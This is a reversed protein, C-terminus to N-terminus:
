AIGGMWEQWLAACGDANPTRKDTWFGRRGLYLDQAWPADLHLVENAPVCRGAIDFDEDAPLSGDANCLVHTGSQFGEPDDLLFFFSDCHDIDGVMQVQAAQAFLVTDANVDSPIVYQALTVRVAGDGDLDAGLATFREQLQMAQEETLPRSGVYAVQFDPLDKNVSWANWLINALMAVLAVGLVVHWKHYYWWNNWKERPTLERVPAPKENRALWKLYESAM